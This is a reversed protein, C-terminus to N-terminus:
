ACDSPLTVGEFYCM